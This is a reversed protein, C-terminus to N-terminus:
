DSKNLAPIVFREFLPSADMDYQKLVNPIIVDWQNLNEDIAGAVGTFIILDIKKTISSDLIRTIARAASVKGWGSWATIVNIRRVQPVSENFIGKYITLDGFNFEEKNTIHLLIEGVEEPMASLIAVNINEM